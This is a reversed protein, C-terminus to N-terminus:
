HEALDNSGVSNMDDDLAPLERELWKDRPIQGSPALPAQEVFLADVIDATSENTVETIEWMTNEASTRSADQIPDVTRKESPEDASATNSNEASDVFIPDPVPHESKM